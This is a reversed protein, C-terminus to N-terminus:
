SSFQNFQFDLLTKYIANFDLPEMAISGPAFNFIFSIKGLVLAWNSFTLLKPAFHFITMKTFLFPAMELAM